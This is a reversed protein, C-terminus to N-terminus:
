ILNLFQRSVLNKFFDSQCVDAGASAQVKEKCSSICRRLIRGVTLKQIARWLHPSLIKNEYTDITLSVHLIQILPPFALLFSSVTPSNPVLCVCCLAALKTRIIKRYPVPM